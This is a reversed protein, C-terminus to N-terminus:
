KNCRRHLHRVHSFRGATRRTLVDADTLMREVSSMDIIDGDARIAVRQVVNQLERVNGPFEYVELLEIAPKSFRLNRGYSRNFQALFTNALVAIDERRERLPPIDIPYVNIRYFLDHRFKGSKVLELLNRNTAAVIRVDFRVPVTSGLPYVEQDQIARLLKVQLPLSLESIEDLLLTGLHAKVFLGTKGQQSAGTFAGKEYGFLESELLAEPIAGCNIKIMPHSRRDSSAHILNAVVEKGVGSEGVLLVTTSFPAVRQVEEMVAETAPSAYVIDPYGSDTARELLLELQKRYSEGQRRTKELEKQLHSVETLDRSAIVIREMSGLPSFIPNGVVLIPTEGNQM